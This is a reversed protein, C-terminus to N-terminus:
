REGEEESLKEWESDTSLDGTSEGMGTGRRKSVEEEVPALSSSAGEASEEPRDVFVTSQSEMRVRKEKPKQKLTAASAATEEQEEGQDGEGDNGEKGDRRLRRAEEEVGQAAKLEAAFWNISWWLGGCICSLAVFHLSRTAILM